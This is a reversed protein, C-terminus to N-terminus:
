GRWRLFLLLLAIGGAGWLVAALVSKFGTQTETVLKAVTEQVYELLSALQQKVDLVRELTEAQREIARRSREEDDEQPTRRPIDDEGWKKFKEIIKQSFRDPQDHMLKLVGDVEKSESRYFFTELVDDPLQALDDVAMTGLGYSTPLIYCLVNRLASGATKTLAWGKRMGEGCRHADYGDFFDAAGRKLDSVVRPHAFFEVACEALEPDPVAASTAEELWAIFSELNPIDLHRIFALRELQSLATLTKYNITLVTGKGLCYRVLDCPDAEAKAYLAQDEETAAFAKFEERYQEPGKNRFFSHRAAWYRVIPAADNLALKTLWTPTGKSVGTGEITAIVQLRSETSLNPWAMAVLHERLGTARTLEELVTEPLM